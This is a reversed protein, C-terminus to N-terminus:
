YRVHRRRALALGALGALVVAMSGPEPVANVNDLVFAANASFTVERLNSWGQFSFGSLAGLALMENLQSNDGLLGHINLVGTDQPDYLGYDLGLLSFLGGGAATFTLPSNALVFLGGTGGSGIGDLTLYSAADGAFRFGAEHYTALNTNNDIDVAGPSDFTVIAAQVGATLSLAAACALSSLLKKM